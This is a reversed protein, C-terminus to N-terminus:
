RSPKQLAAQRAYKDAEAELGAKRLCFILSAYTKPSDPEASIKQRYYAAALRFKGQAMLLNGINELVLPKGPDLKLEEEYLKQAQAYRGAQKYIVGLNNRADPQFPNAALAQLYYKRALPIEGRLHAQYGLEYAAESSSPSTKRVSSWFAAPDKFNGLYGYTGAAMCVTVAGLALLSNLKGGRLLYGAETLALAFFFSPLYNRHPIFHDSFASPLIFLYIAVAAAGLVYRGKQRWLVAFLALVAANAVVVRVWHLDKFWAYIPPDYPFFLYAAYAATRGFLEGVGPFAVEGRLVASRMFWYVALCFVWGAVAAAAQRAHKPARRWGAALAWAPFVFILVAATEKTLLAALFFFLHAVFFAPNRRKIAAALFLLALAATFFLLSDNRGPIWASAGAIVPNLSFLLAGAAAFGSPYGLGALLAFCLGANFIHLLLNTRHFVAPEFVEGSRGADLMFSLTLVPRYFTGSGTEFVDHRFAETLSKTAKLGRWKDMFLQQEDLNVPQFGIIQRYVFLNALIVGTLLALNKKTM